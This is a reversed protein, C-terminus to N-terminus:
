CILELRNADESQHAPRAREGAGKKEEMQVGGFRESDGVRTTTM